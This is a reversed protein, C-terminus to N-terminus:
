DRRSVPQIRADGRVELEYFLGTPLTSWVSSSPLGARNLADSLWHNCVYFLHYDPRARYFLSVGYLGPGLRQPPAVLTEAIQARLAARGEADLMLRLMPAGSFAEEPHREVGVVHLVSKTPWLLASAVLGTSADSIDPAQRYFGDDGWGIEFWMIYSPFPDILALGDLASRPLILGVHYGHDVIWVPQVDEAGLRREPREPILAYLLLLALARWIWRRLAPM